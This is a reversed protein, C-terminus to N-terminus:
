TGRRGVVAALTRVLIGLDLWISWNEIYQNDFRIRDSISTNGRLNHVQAWGTIGPLVRHRDAYRPLQRSFRSVFFPREPRPGILSMDGRLVNVLQPLEDLGTKRLFLGVRTRRDDDDVCWTVDSDGNCRLTRFKLIEILRGDQGVREQRFFVPGRSSLRVAIATVAFVPASTLLFVSGLVLDFVRKTWRPIPNNAPRGLRVLPFGWIDDAAPGPRTVGLEFLRPVVHVEVPLGACARLIGVLEADSLRGFTVIVHTINLVRVTQPLTSIDFHPPGDVDVFGVPILGYSLHEQLLRAIGAGVEGSGIILTREVLVGENRLRRVASYTVARGVVLPVFATCAVGALSQIAPRFAPVAVIVAFPLLLSQIIRPLDDTLRFTLRARHLGRTAMVVLVSGAYAVCLAGASDVGILPAQLAVCDASLIIATVVTSTEHLKRSGEHEDRRHGNHRGPSDPDPRSFNDAGVSTANATWTGSV